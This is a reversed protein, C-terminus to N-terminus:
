ILSGKKFDFVQYNNRKFYGPETKYLVPAFNTFISEEGVPQGKIKETRCIENYRFYQDHKKLFIHNKQFVHFKSAIREPSVLQGKLYKDNVWIKLQLPHKAINRIKLDVFNYLITAGSGFPIVRGSDPFVDMSHHYRELVTVPAHLFIWCLFNSLQCLGGGMGEVVRGSALLMGDVYGRKITPKGIIQWLSFIDGPQIVVGNLAKAAQCLNIVKQEQLRPNSNGLRRRLVSQHRAVVCNFFEAQRSYKIQPHFFTKLKHALCRIAIIPKKIIPYRRSLAIRTPNEYQNLHQILKFKLSQSITPISRNISQTTSPKRESLDAM